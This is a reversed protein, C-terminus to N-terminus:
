NEGLPKQLKLHSTQDKYKGLIDKVKGQIVVRDNQIETVQGYNTGIYTGIQIMYGKGSAEEVIAKYGSLFKIVGVLTLQSLDIKELPTQRIRDPENSELDEEVTPQPGQKKLPNEFPDIKGEPNYLRARYRTVTGTAAKKKIDEMTKQISAEDGEPVEAAKDTTAVPKAQAQVASKKATVPKKPVAAKIKTAVVEPQTSASEEDGGCGVLGWLFCLAAITLFSIKFKSNHM